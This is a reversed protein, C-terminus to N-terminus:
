LELIGVDADHLVVGERGRRLRGGKRGVECALEGCPIGRLGCEGGGGLGYGLLAGARGACLLEEHEELRVLGLVVFRVVLIKVPM